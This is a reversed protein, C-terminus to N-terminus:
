FLIMLIHMHQELTLTEQFNVAAFEVNKSGFYHTVAFVNHM